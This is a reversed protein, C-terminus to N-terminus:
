KDPLSKAFKILAFGLFIGTLDGYIMLAKTVIFFQEGTSIGFVALNNHLTWLICNIFYLTSGVLLLKKM